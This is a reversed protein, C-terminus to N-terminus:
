PGRVTGPLRAAGKGSAGVPAAYAQAYWADAVLDHFVTARRGGELELAFYRRAIEDRWWEDDIRWSDHITRVGRFVGRWLLAKPEGHDDAEVAVPQPGNLPRLGGAGAPTGPDAVM